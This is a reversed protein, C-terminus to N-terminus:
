GESRQDPSPAAALSRVWEAAADKFDDEAEIARDESRSLPVGDWAAYTTESAEYLARLEAPVQPQQQQLAAAFARVDTDYDTAASGGYPRFLMWMGDPHQKILCWGGPLEIRESTM